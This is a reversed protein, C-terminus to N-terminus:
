LVAKAKALQLEQVMEEFPPIKDDRELLTSVNPFRKAAKQYLDWVGDCVPHDHTDIRLKGNMSHGALHFQGVYAPTIKELYETASWGHNECSVFVNNVDLLLGCGTRKAIENMFDWEQMDSHRFCLYSSVNEFLFPRGIFNQVADIRECIHRLSEENYPLPLLDHVNEGNVGTWCLHDSVWAPQIRDFLAKLQALYTTDLPDTSGISMSVGHLVIPYRARVKELIQIPRGGTGGATPLFNESIAEFWEVQTSFPSNELISHYHPVRLGLGFGLYQQNSTTHGM